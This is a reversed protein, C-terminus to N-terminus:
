LIATCGFILDFPNIAVVGDFEVERNIEMYARNKMDVKEFGGGSIVRVGAIYLGCARRDFNVSLGFIFDSSYYVRAKKPSGFFELVANLPYTVCFEVLM